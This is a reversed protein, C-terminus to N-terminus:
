PAAGVRDPRRVGADSLPLVRDCRPQRKGRRQTEDVRADRRPMRIPPRHPWDAACRAARCRCAFHAARAPGLTKGYFADMAVVPAGGRGGSRRATPPDAADFHADARAACPGPEPTPM